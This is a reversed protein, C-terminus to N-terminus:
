IPLYDTESDLGVFFILDPDHDGGVDSRWCALQRAGAIIGLEGSLISRAAAVIKASAFRRHEENYISPRGCGTCTPLHNPNERGCYHCSAAASENTNSTM